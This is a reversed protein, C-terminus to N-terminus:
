KARLEPKETRAAEQIGKVCHRAVQSLIQVEVRQTVETGDLFPVQRRTQCLEQLCAAQVNVLAHYPRREQRRCPELGKSAAKPALKAAFIVSPSAKTHLAAVLNVSEISVAGAQKVSSRGLVFPINAIGSQSEGAGSVTQILRGTSWAPSPSDWMTLAPCQPRSDQEVRGEARSALSILM